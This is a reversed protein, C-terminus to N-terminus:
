RPIDKLLALEGFYDNNEYEYVTEQQGSANKKTAYAKGSEIFYFTDGSEGEKIIYSGPAYTHSVLCDCLKSREYPELEQLLEVESLFSDYKERRRIASEKVINNFCERDLSYLVSAENAKISAARPTNYLLALEGFSMGPTYTLLNTPASQGPFLKYCDLSGQFVFYLVDGDDGQNIIVQGKEVRVEQMADIVIKQESSELARFMFSENLKNLLAHEIDQSKPYVKPVFQGKKNFLGYVEASVSTRGKVLPKKTNFQELTM